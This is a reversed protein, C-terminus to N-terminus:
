TANNPSDMWDLTEPLYHALGELVGASYNGNMGLFDGEALYLTDALGAAQVTDLARTKVDPEANAVLIGNIHSTLAHLDNGSDGAFITRNPSYGQQHMLFEMAHLKSANIPLVDLLGVAAMEDYSWVLRANIGLRWLRRQIEAELIDPNASRDVYYSAKLMGQKDREQATLASLDQLVDTIDDHTMGSWDPAIEATWAPWSAWVNADLSMSGSTPTYITTGVDGIIFEPAPLKWEDIGSLVLGLDRGSILTLHVEPHQCIRRLRPRADPSEPQRGNPILTRDLDCCLLIPQGPHTTTM